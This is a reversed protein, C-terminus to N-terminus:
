DPSSMGQQSRARLAAVDSANKNDAVTADRPGVSKSGAFAMAVIAATFLLGVIANAKLWRDFTRQDEPSMHKHTRAIDSKGM